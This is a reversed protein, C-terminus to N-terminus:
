LRLDGRSLRNLFTRIPLPLRFLVKGSHETASKMQLRDIFTWSSAEENLGNNAGFAKLLADAQLAAFKTNSNGAANLEEMGVFFLLECIVHAQIKPM